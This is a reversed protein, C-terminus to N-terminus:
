KNIIRFNEGNLRDGKLRQNDLQQRLIGVVTTKSTRRKKAVTLMDDIWETIKVTM